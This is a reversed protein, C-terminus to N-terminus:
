GHPPDQGHNVGKYSGTGGLRLGVLWDREEETLVPVHRNLPHEEVAPKGLDPVHKLAM